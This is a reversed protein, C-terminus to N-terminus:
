LKAKKAIIIPPPVKFFGLNSGTMITIGDLDVEDDVVPEEDDDFDVVVV